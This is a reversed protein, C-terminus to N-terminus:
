RTHTKKFWVVGATCGGKESYPWFWDQGAKSAYPALCSKKINAEGYYRQAMHRVNVKASRVICCVVTLAVLRTASKGFWHGPLFFSHYAFVRSLLWVRSTKGLPNFVTLFLITPSTRTFYLFIVMVCVFVCYHSLCSLVTTFTRSQFYENHTIRFM